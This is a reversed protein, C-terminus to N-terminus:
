GQSQSQPPVRGQAQFQGQGQSQSQSQRATDAVQLRVGMTEVGGGIRSGRVPAASLYDLGAAVRLYASTPSQANAPDFGVWGLGEVYAEAWAHAAEQEVQGDRVLHGSVYRAPAGMARAACIFVHAMDQCVGHGAALAQGATTAAGTQGVEFRMRGAVLGMLAHLRGLPAAAAAQAERALGALAPDPATLPTDRLYALPPFREVAGSLVGAADTVEAEGEVLIRLSDAPGALYFTHVVNGFADEGQRVRGDADVQVRWRGVRQHDHGRPTMRILQVASRLTAAYRYTTEFGIRIRM